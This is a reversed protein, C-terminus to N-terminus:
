SNNEENNGANELLLKIDTKGRISYIFFIFLLVYFTKLHQWKLKVFLNM